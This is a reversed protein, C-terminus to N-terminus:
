GRSSTELCGTAWGPRWWCRVPTCSGPGRRARGAPSQAPPAVQAPPLPPPPPSPLPAAKRKHSPILVSNNLSRHSPLVLPSISASALSSPPSLPFLNFPKFPTQLKEKPMSVAVSGSLICIVLVVTSGTLVLAIPQLVERDYFQVLKMCLVHLTFHGCLVRNAIM